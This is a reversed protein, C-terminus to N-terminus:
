EKSSSDSLYNGAIAAMRQALESIRMEGFQSVASHLTDNLPRTWKDPLAQAGSLIGLVTGANAANCDTDFGCMVATCITKGFDGNGYLLALAMLATNNIAHTPNLSAWKELLREYASQWDAVEQHVALVERIAEAQRCNAPIESLGAHIIEEIDDTVFAWAICAATFMASYIGNKTHSLAADRYALQAAFEPNGPVAMGYADVRIRAGIYEREPNLFRRADLPPIGLVLNRYTTREATWTKHYALHGLWEAAVDETRFDLGYTELVHLALITYDTDDDEPAGSFEGFFNGKVMPDIPFDNPLPDLRTIYHSLPYNNSLKLYEAIKGWYGFPEVPKGLVCGSVRGLWGGRIRDFLIAPDNRVAARRPGDPRLRRIENLTEPESYAFERARRAELLENYLRVLEETSNQEDLSERLGNVDFGEEGRQRIEMRILSRLQEVDLLRLFAGSLEPTPNM